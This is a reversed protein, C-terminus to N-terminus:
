MLSLLAKTIDSYKLPMIQHIKTNDAYVGNVLLASKEGLILKLLIIPVSPLIIKKHLVQALTNNFEHNTCNSAIANIPGQIYNNNISNIYFQVLDDIHIWPISQNGHGIDSLLYNKALKKLIPLMGGKSSLVVGTRVMVTRSVKSNFKIAAEEWLKCVKSLFNEGAQQKEDYPNQPSNNEPYYNIGSASILIEPFLSNEECKKFLLDLSKIRSDIIEKRVKKTWRGESINKGALHIIALNNELSSIDLDGTKWNWYFYKIGDCRSKSQTLIKVVWGQAELELTLANGILGTGGTILIHKNKM